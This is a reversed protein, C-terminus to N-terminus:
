YKRGYPPIRIDTKPPLASQDASIMDSASVFFSFSFVFAMAILLNKKNLLTSM